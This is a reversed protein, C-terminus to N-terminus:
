NGASRDLAKAPILKTKGAKQMLEVYKKYYATSRSKDTEWLVDAINLKLVVRDPFNKEVETLVQYAKNYEGAQALAYGLDNYAVVTSKSIPYDTKLQELRGPSLYSKIADYDMDKLRVLIIDHALALSDATKGSEIETIKKAAIKRQTYWAYSNGGGELSGEYASLIKSLSKLNEISDLENGTYVFTEYQKGNLGIGSHLVPWACTFLFYIKTGKVTFADNIEANGGEPECANPLVYRKGNQSILSGKLTQGRDGESAVFEVKGATNFVPDLLYSPSGAWTLSSYGFVLLLIVNKM